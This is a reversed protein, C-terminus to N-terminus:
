NDVVKATGDVVVSSPEDKRAELQVPKDNGFMIVQDADIYQGKFVANDPNSLGTLTHVHKIADLQVKDSAGGTELMELLRLWTHGLLDYSINKAVRIASNKRFQVAEKFKGSQYFQRQVWMDSKGIYEATAKQERLWPLMMLFKKQDNSFTEWGEIGELDQQDRQEYFGRMKGAALAPHKTNEKRRPM